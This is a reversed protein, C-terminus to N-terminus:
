MNRANKIALNMDDYTEKNIKKLIAPGNQTAENDDCFQM